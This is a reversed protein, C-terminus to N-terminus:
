FLCAACLFQLMSPSDCCCSIVNLSQNGLNLFTLSQGLERENGSFTEGDIASLVSDLKSGILDPLRDGCGLRQGLENFADQSAIRSIAGQGWEPIRNGCSLGASSGHGRSRVPLPPPVQPHHQGQPWPTPTRGQHAQLTAVNPTFRAVPPLHPVSAARGHISPEHSREYQNGQKQKVETRKAGKFMELCTVYCAISCSTRSWGSFSNQVKFKRTVTGFGPDVKPGVHSHQALPQSQPM